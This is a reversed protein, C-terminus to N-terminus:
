VENEIVKQTNEFNNCVWEIKKMIDTMKEQGYLTEDIVDFPTENERTEFNNVDCIDFVDLNGGLIGFEKNWQCKTNDYCEGTMTRKLRKTTVDKAIGNPTTPTIEDLQCLIFKRNGGLDKNLQMVAQGTTGSGAFFDLIIANENLNVMKILEYILASPKPNKFLTSGNVFIKDLEKKGNDNSYKNDLFSLTTYSKSPDSFILENKGNAKKCNLYSKTYIRNGKLVLLKEKIGWEVASKSWRWVWDTVGHEGKLRRKQKEIDGGPVFKKGEFEIEYDMNESYQLSDYDLTQTLCYKGRTDVFEDSLKYKTIDKEEQSFIIDQSMTYALIYDNNKAITTTSKGGKKTIRPVNFLFKAEGFVSDFLGKMYAQNRDDISCFIVGDPSLLRRAILLRDYMMSMLDDRTIDNLYNTNAKEGMSDKGYPPDIYIVDIQGKYKILLNQLASYNDGIILENNPLKDDTHFSLDKNRKLYYIKSDNKPPTYDFQFGSSVNMTGMASILIAESLDDAKNILKILAEAKNKTIIGDSYRKNIEDEIEKITIATQKTVM